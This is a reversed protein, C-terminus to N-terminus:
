KKYKLVITNGGLSLTISKESEITARVVDDGSFTMILTDEDIEYTGKDTEIEDGEHTTWNVKGDKLEITISYGSESYTYIGEVDKSCATFVIVGLAAVALLLGAIRKKM